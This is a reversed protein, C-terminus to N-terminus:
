NLMKNSINTLYFIVLWVIAKEKFPPKNAQSIEKEFDNV